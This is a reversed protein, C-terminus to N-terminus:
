PISRLIRNTRPRAFHTLDVSAIITSARGIVSARPVCGFYRSDHSDDRNDGMMFYSGAPVRVPGFTRLAPRGPLVQMPHPRGALQEQALLVDDRSGTDAGGAPLPAYAVPLGNILLRLAIRSTLLIGLRTWSRFRPEAPAEGEMKQACIM